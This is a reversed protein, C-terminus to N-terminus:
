LPIPRSTNQAYMSHFSTMHPFIATVTKKNRFRRNVKDPPNPRVPHPATCFAFPKQSRSCAYISRNHAPSENIYQDVERTGISRTRLWRVDESEPDADLDTYYLTGTYGVDWGSGQDLHEAKYCEEAPLLGKNPLTLAALDSLSVLNFAMGKVTSVLPVTDSGSSNTSTGPFPHPLRTNHIRFAHPVEVTARGSEKDYALSITGALSKLQEAGSYISPHSAVYIATGITLHGAFALHSSPTFIDFDVTGNDNEVSSEHLFATENLDFERAIKQM